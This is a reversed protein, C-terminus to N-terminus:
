VCVCVCVCVGVCLGLACLTGTEAPSSWADLHHLVRILGCAIQGEDRHCCCCRRCVALPSRQGRRGRSWQVGGGGTGVTVAM